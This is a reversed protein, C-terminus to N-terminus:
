TTEQDEEEEERRDRVASGIGIAGLALGLTAMTGLSSSGDGTDPLRSSGSAGTSGGSGDSGGTTPADSSGNSYYYRNAQFNTSEISKVSTMVDVSTESPDADDGNLGLDVMTQVSAVADDLESYGDDHDALKISSDIVYADLKHEHEGKDASEQWKKPVTFSALYTRKKGPTLVGDATPADFSAGCPTFAATFSNTGQPDVQDDATGLQEDDVDIDELTLLTSEPTITIHLTDIVTGNETIAVDFQTLVTNGQNQVTFMFTEDKGASVYTDVSNFAVLDLKKILPVGAFYIDAKSTKFDTVSGFVFCTANDSTFTTIHDAPHELKAFAFPSILHVGGKYSVKRAAYIQYVKMDDTPTLSGDDNIKDADKGDSVKSFYITSGDASVDFSDVTFKDLLTSGVTAQMNGEDNVELQITCLTDGKKAISGGSADWPRIVSVGDIPALTQCTTPDTPILPPQVWMFEAKTAGTIDSSNDLSLHASQDYTIFSFVAGDSTSGGVLHIQVDDKPSTNADPSEFVTKNGIQYFEGLADFALLAPFDEITTKGDFFSGGVPIRRHLFGVVVNDNENMTARPFMIAHEYTNSDNGPLTSQLPRFYDLCEHHHIIALSMDLVISMVITKQSEKDLSAEADSARIGGIIILYVRGITDNTVVDFDYDFIQSRQVTARVSDEYEYHLPGKDVWVGDVLQSICVRSRIYSTSGDVYRVSALRFLYTQGNTTVVKVRPDSFVDSIIKVERVTAGDGKSDTILGDACSNGTHRGGNIPSFTFSEVGNTTSTNTGEQECTLELEGQTVPVALSNLDFGEYVTSNPSSGMVAPSALYGLTGNTGPLPLAVDDRIPLIDAADSSTGWTDALKPYDKSYINVNIKFIAFQITLQFGFGGGIVGHPVSKDSTPPVVFGAYLRIYGYGRVGISLLGALGVGVTLGIQLKLDVTVGSGNLVARAGSLGEAPTSISLILDSTLDATFDFTFFLPVPGAMTAGTYSFSFNFGLCTDLSGGWARVIAGSPEKRQAWDLELLGSLSVQVSVSKIPEMKGFSKNESKRLSNAAKYDQYTKKMSSFKEVVQEKASSTPTSEWMSDDKKGKDDKLSASCSTGIGLALKGFPSFVLSVPFEPYWVSVDAKNFVPFDPAFKSSIDLGSSGGEFKLLETDLIGETSTVDTTCGEAVALSTRCTMKAGTGETTLFVDTIMGAAFCHTKDAVEGLYIGSFEASVYGNTDPKLGKQVDSTKISDVIGTSGVTGHNYGLSYTLGTNGVYAKVALKHEFPTKAKNSLLFTADEGTTYQIDYRDFTLCQFYAEGAKVPLTALDIRNAGRIRLKGTEFTRYGTCSAVVKGWFACVKEDYDSDQLESYSAINVIAAGAADTTAPPLNQEDSYSYIKITAGPLALPSTPSSVDKFTFATEERSLVYLTVTSVGTVADDAYAMVTNGGFLNTMLTAAGVSAALSFFGRRSIAPQRSADAEGLIRALGEADPTLADAQAPSTVRVDQEHDFADPTPHPHGSM